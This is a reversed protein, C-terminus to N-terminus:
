YEYLVSVAGQETPNNQRQASVEIRYTYHAVNSGTGTGTSATTGKGFLMGGAPQEPYPAGINTDVIKSNVIFAPQGATAPLTMTIDPDTNPDPNASTALPGCNTVWDAVTPDLKARLCDSTVNFTLGAGLGGLSAIATNMATTTDIGDFLTPLINYMTVESGGYSAEVANQYVRKHGQSRINETVAYIIGMIIVLSIMTIMLATILAFGKTDAHLKM